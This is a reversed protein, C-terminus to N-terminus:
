LYLVENESEHLTFDVELRHPCCKQFLKNNRLREVISYQHMHNGKSFLSSM